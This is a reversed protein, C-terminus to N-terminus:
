RRAYGGAGFFSYALDAALSVSLRVRLIVGVQLMNGGLRGGFIGLAIDLIPIATAAILIVTVFVAGLFDGLGVGYRRLQRLSGRGAVCAAKGQPKDQHKGAAACGGACRGEASLFLVVSLPIYGKGGKGPLAFADYCYPAKAVTSFGEPKESM